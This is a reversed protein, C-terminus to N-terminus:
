LRKVAWSIRRPYTTTRVISTVTYSCRLGTMDTFCVTDDNVIRKMFDLQGSNDSGGIVLGNQYISGTYRCPYHSVRDSEWSAYVPLERNYEPIEIIGCFNLGDVEVRVALTLYMGTRIDDFVVTGSDDTTGTCTPVLGDATAYAALTTTVQRWEAQTTIGYINVPYDRFNGTLEYIGDACIAAVRYTKIELDAFSEGNYRYQLTLSSARDVDIPSIASVSLPLVAAMMLVALILVVIKKM